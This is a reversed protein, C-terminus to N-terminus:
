FNLLDKNMDSSHGQRRVNSRSSFRSWRPKKRGSNYVLTTESISRIITISSTHLSDGHINHWQGGIHEEDVLVHKCFFFSIGDKSHSMYCDHNERACAILYTIAEKRYAVFVNSLHLLLVCLALSRNLEDEFLFSELKIADSRCWKEKLNILNKKFIM